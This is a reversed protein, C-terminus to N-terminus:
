NKKNMKFRVLMIMNNLSTKNEKNTTQEEANVQHSVLTTGALTM